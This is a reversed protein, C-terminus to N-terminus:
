LPTVASSRSDRGTWFPSQALQWAPGATSTRVDTARVAVVLELADLTKQSVRHAVWLDRIEASRALGSRACITEITRDAFFSTRATTVLCVAESPTVLGLAALHDVTAVVDVMAETLPPFGLEAPGNTIAVDADDFLEGSCFRTAISGIPIMGFPACEAARLAGMSAAGFVTVGAALAFLIEKHWVAGTQQYHGDILGIITAGDAMAREICGTEAPGRFEIGTMDFDAGYLSPGAFVIKM